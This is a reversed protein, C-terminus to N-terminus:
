HIKTKPRIASLKYSRNKYYKHSVAIAKIKDKM